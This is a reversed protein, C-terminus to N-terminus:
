RLPAHVRGFGDSTMAAADLPDIQASWAFTPLTVEGDELSRVRPRKIGIRQGGLLVASRTGGGRVAARTADPVNGAGYM